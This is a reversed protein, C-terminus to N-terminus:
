KKKKLILVLLLLGAASLGIILPLKSKPAPPQVYTVPPPYNSPANSTKIDKIFSGINGAAKGVKDMDINQWWKGSYHKKGETDLVYDRPANDTEIVAAPRPAIPELGNDNLLRKYKTSNRNM